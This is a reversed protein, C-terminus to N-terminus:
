KIQKYFQPDVLMKEYEQQAIDDQTRNLYQQKKLSRKEKVSHSENKSHKKKSQHQQIGEWRLKMGAVESNLTRKLVLNPTQREFAKKELRYIKDLRQADLPKMEYKKISKKDISFEPKAIRKLREVRNNTNCLLYLFEHPFMKDASDKSEPFDAKTRAKYDREVQKIHRELEVRDPKECELHQRYRKIWTNILDDSLTKNM